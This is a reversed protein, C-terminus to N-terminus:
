SVPCVGCFPGPFSQLSYADLVEAYDRYLGALENGLNNRHIHQEFKKVRSRLDAIAQTLENGDREGAPFQEYLVDILRLLFLREDVNGAPGIQLRPVSEADVAPCWCLLMFACLLRHVAVPWRSRATHIGLLQLLTAKM